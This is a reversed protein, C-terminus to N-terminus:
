RDPAPQPRDPPTRTICGTEPDFHPGALWGPPPARTELEACLRFTGTPTVELQYPAGTYPDDRRPSQCLDSRATTLEESAIGATNRLCVMHLYLANLDSLRTTDRREAQATGPGGVTWFAAIIVAVALAALAYAEPRM